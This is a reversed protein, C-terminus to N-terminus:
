EHFLHRLNIYCNRSPPQVRLHVFLTPEGSCFFRYPKRGTLRTLLHLGGGPEAVGHCSLASVKVRDDAFILCDVYEFTVTEEFQTSTTAMADRIRRFSPRSTM